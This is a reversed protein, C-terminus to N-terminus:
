KGKIIKKSGDSYEIVIGEKLAKEMRDGAQKCRHCLAFDGQNELLLNFLDNIQKDPKVKTSQGCNICTSM